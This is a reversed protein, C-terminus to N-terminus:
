QHQRDDEDQGQTGQEVAHDLARLRGGVERVLRGCQEDARARPPAAGRQARTPGTLTATRRSTRPGSAMRYGATRGCSSPSPHSRCPWTPSATTQTTTARRCRTTPPASTRTGAATAALEC